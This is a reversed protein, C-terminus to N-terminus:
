ENTRKNLCSLPSDTSSTQLQWHQRSTLGCPLPAAHVRPGPKTCSAIPAAAVFDEKRFALRKYGLGHESKPLRSTFRLHSPQVGKNCIAPSCWAAQIMFLWCFDLINHSMKPKIKTASPQAAGRQKTKM